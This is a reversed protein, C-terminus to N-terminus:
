LVLASESGVALPLEAVEFLHRLCDLLGALVSYSGELVHADLLMWM